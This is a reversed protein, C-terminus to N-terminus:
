KQYEGELGENQAAFGARLEKMEQRLRENEQKVEKHKTEMEEMEEKLWLAEVEVMEREKEVKRLLGVGKDAAKQAVVLEGDVSKLKSHVEESNDMNHAIYARM